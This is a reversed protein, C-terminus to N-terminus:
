RGAVATAVGKLAEARVSAHWMLEKTQVNQSELCLDAFFHFPGGKFLFSAKEKGLGLLEAWGGNQSLKPLLAFEM